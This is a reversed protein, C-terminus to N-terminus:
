RAPAPRQLDHARRARDDDGQRARARAAHRARRVGAGAGPPRPLRRADARGGRAHAARGRALHRGREPTCPGPRSSAASTAAARAAGRRDRPRQAGDRVEAGLEGLYQVLNYTFSDYNDLVLVRMGLGAARLGARDRADRRQPRPSRSRTSTTPSRTPSRAAAPRCTPSATRSSSRASTSRPTSTAARLQPLRGRRRLRRAQGARARRHDADRAGEARGLAHRRAAGLAARGDRRRGRAAHGLRLLRHAHRPQLDRGGDARRRQVSGYECVRGLDNRGLDVLM